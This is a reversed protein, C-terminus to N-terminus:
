SGYGAEAITQNVLRGIPEIEVILEDGPGVLVKPVPQSGIGKPSGTLILDGTELTTIASLYSILEHVDFIMQGTHGSLVLEGNRYTRLELEELPPIEDLTVLFPGLPTFTDPLKGTMWQSSRNELDSATLDNALTCGAIHDLAREPSIHRGGRGIVLALEGECAVQQSVRPLLIPQRHGVLTNAFKGFIVPYAPREASRAGPVPYNLGVCLIKGPSPIPPLLQTEDLASVVGAAALELENEPLQATIEAVLSDLDALLGTGAQLLGTLNAPIGQDGAPQSFRQWTRALDVVWRTYVAGTRAQGAQLYTALRM